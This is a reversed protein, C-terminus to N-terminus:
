ISTARIKTFNDKDFTDNEETLKYVYEMTAKDPTKLIWKPPPMHYEEKVRQVLPEVWPLHEM